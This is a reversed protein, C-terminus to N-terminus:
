RRLLGASISRNNLSNSIPTVFKKRSGLTHSYRFITTKGCISAALGSPRANLAQIGAQEVPSSAYESAMTNWSTTAPLLGGDFYLRCIKAVSRDASAM